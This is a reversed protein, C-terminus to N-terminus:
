QCLFAPKVTLFYFTSDILNFSVRFGATYLFLTVFKVFCSTNFFSYITSTVNRKKERKWSALDSLLLPTASPQLAWILPGCVSLEDVPLLLTLLLGWTLTPAIPSAEVCVVEGEQGSRTYRQFVAVPDKRRWANCQLCGWKGTCEMSCALM